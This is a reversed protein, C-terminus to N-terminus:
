LLDKRDEMYLNDLLNTIITADDAGSVHWFLQGLGDTYSYITEM